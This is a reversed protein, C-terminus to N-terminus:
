FRFDPEIVRVTGRIIQTRRCCSKETELKVFPVLAEAFANVLERVTYEAIRDQPVNRLLDEDIEVQSALSHVQAPCTQVYHTIGRENKREYQTGCYECKLSCSNITGGCNQCQLAELM